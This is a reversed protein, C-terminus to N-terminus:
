DAAKEERVTRLRLLAILNVTVHAAACAPYGSFEFLVGFALGMTLAVLPWIWLRRDPALHLLAFALSAVWIGVVPQLFARLLAEEAIGSLLAVAAAEGASWSGVVDRQWQELQRLAPSFRLLWLVAATAAGAAVGLALSALPSHYPALAPLPGGERLALGALALLGVVGEQHVVLVPSLSRPVASM